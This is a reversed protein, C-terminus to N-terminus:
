RIKKIWFSCGYPPQVGRYFGELAKANTKFLFANAILIKYDHNNMLFAQLLYQENWTQGREFIWLDPYDDPLFIDHLHIIVGPKLRPLVEFFFWNVDSAVKVCHSGDYFCIDGAQLAEFIEFPARQLPSRHLRWDHPFLEFLAPNPYPEIQTVKCPTGNRVLARQMLLSSWGCGVEVVRKPKLDRLLGYQVLADTNNWMPNNWCYEVKGPQHDQPVDRLEEVYNGVTQAVMLQEDVRWDISQPSPRGKWLDINEKLFAVDNLPSYYDNAQFHYGARQIEAFPIAKLAEIADSLSDFPPMTTELPSFFNTKLFFNVCRMGWHNRIKDLIANAAALRETTGQLQTTLMAISQEREDALNGLSQIRAQLVVNSQEREDALKEWALRQEDLWDKATLLDQVYSQLSLISREREAAVNMWSQRQDDLWRVQTQLSFNSQEHTVFNSCDWLRLLDIALANDFNILDYFVPRDKILSFIYMIDFSVYENKRIIEFIEPVPTHTNLEKLNEVILWNVEIQIKLNGDKENITNKSHIRYKLLDEKILHIQFKKSLRLLMDWDHTYRLNKFGGCEQFVKRRAFLNSTSVMINKAFANPYFTDENFFPLVEAYWDLWYKVQPTVGKEAPTGQDDIGEITTIVVSYDTNKELFILCRELRNPSYIDDSNLISIYEGQALSIGKNIASHAGSNPQKVYQIRNDHISLIKEETSDTSGDNIIIIEFDDYSQTLVSTITETIYKEHNYAPIIVSIKM